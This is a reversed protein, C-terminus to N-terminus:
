KKPEGDRRRARMVILAVVALAALAAGGFVAATRLNRIVRDAEFPAVLAYKSFHSVIAYCMGGSRRTPFADVTGDDNIRVIVVIANQYKQPIPMGIEVEGEPQIEEGGSQVTVDYLSVIDYGEMASHVAKQDGSSTQLPKVILQATRPLAQEPASLIADTTEERVVLDKFTPGQEEASYTRRSTLRDTSTIKPAEVQQDPEPPPPLDKVTYTVQNVASPHLGRKVAFMKITVPRTVSIPGTYSFLEDLVEESPDLGNTSYYLEADPTASSLTVQTGSEIEGSPLSATPAAVQGARTYVYEVVDSPEMGDAAAMAKLVMSENIPIPGTYLASSTGPESGDTTYYISGEKVTLTVAAGDLTIAGTPISASPSPTKQMMTYTFIVPVAGDDGTTAIAKLTVVSGPEGRLTVTSGHSSDEDPTDGDTTYYIDADTIPTSLSVQSGYAVTSGSPPNATLIEEQKCINYTLTVVESPSMLSKTAYARITMSKGEEGDLVVDEGYYRTADEKKSDSTHIVTSSGDSGNIVVDGANGSSTEGASPDSGDKTYVVTAGSQADLRLTTGRAVVAGSDISPDPPDLQEAITFTYSTIASTMGDKEAVAKVTLKQDIPIPASYMQSKFPVPDAPVSGGYAVNYFIGAGETSSKLTLTTGKIVAGAGPVAYVPQVQAPLQYSYRAPDSDLYAGSPDHAVAMITHFTAVDAPMTLGASADYLPSPAEGEAVTAPTRPVTGDLTYYIQTNPVSGTLTIRTDPPITAVGADGTSPLATPADLKARRYTARTIDSEALNEAATVALVTFVEQRETPMKVGTSEYLYTYGPKIGKHMEYDLISPIRGDTTYYIKADLTQTTLTIYEGGRLTVPSADSTAPSAYPAAAKPLPNVSYVFYAVESNQMAHLGDAGPSVAAVANVYFYSQARDYPVTIPGNYLMTGKGDANEAVQAPDPVSGDTTYYVKTNPSPSALTIYSGANVATIKDRSTDPSATPSGARALQYTFRSVGSDALMPASSDTKRTVALIIFPDSDREPAMLVGKKADYIETVPEEGVREEEKTADWALRADPDPISGDTTYFIKSGLTTTLLTIKEGRQLATPASDSTEPSATPADAPDLEVIRYFFSALDSDGLTDNVSRAIVNISMYMQTNRTVVIPTDNYKITAPETKGEREAASMADWAIRADPDPRSGNTTYYLETDPTKTSLIITNGIKVSGPEDATGKPLATPTEVQKRITYTYTFVESDMRTDDEGTVQMKLTVTDGVAGSFTLVQAAREAQVHYSVASTGANRTIFLLPTHQLYTAGENALEGTGQLYTIKPVVYEADVLDVRIEEVDKEFQPVGGDLVVELTGDTKTNTKLKDAKKGARMAAPIDEERLELILRQGNRIASGSTLETGKDADLVRPAQYSRRLNIIFTSVASDPFNQRTFLAKVTVSNTVGSTPLELPQGVTYKKSRNTPTSGDVTYYMQAGPEGQDGHYLYVADLVSPEYYAAPEFLEGDPAGMRLSIAGPVPRNDQTYTVYVVESVPQDSGIVAAVAAVTMISQNDDFAFPGTYLQTGEEPAGTELNFKPMAYASNNTVTYFIKANPTACTITVHDVTSGEANPYIVPRAVRNGQQGSGSGQQHSGRAEIWSTLTIDKGTAPPNLVENIVEDTLSEIATGTQFRDMQESARLLNLRIQLRLAEGEATNETEWAKKEGAIYIYEKKSTWQTIPEELNTKNQAEALEIKGNEGVKFVLTNSALLNEDESVAAVAVYEGLKLDKIKETPNYPHCNSQDSPDVVVPTEPKYETGIRRYYYTVGSPPTPEFAGQYTTVGDESIVGGTGVPQDGVKVTTTATGGFDKVNELVGEEVRITATVIISWTTSVKEPVKLLGHDITLGIDPPTVSWELHDKVLQEDLAAGGVLATIQAAGGAVVSSPGKLEISSVAPIIKEPFSVAQSDVTIKNAGSTVSDVVVPIELEVTTEVENLTATAKVKLNTSATLSKLGSLTAKNDTTESLSVTRPITVAEIKAGKMTAGATCSATLTIEDDGDALATSSLTLAPGTTSADNAFTQVPPQAKAPMSAGAASVGGADDFAFTIPLTVTVTAGGREQAALSVYLKEYEDVANKVTEATLGSLTATANGGSDAVENGTLTVGAAKCGWNLTANAFAEGLAAEIAIEGDVLPASTLTVTPTEEPQTALMAPTTTGTGGTGSAPPADASADAPQATVTYTTTGSGSHTLTITGKLEVPKAPNTKTGESIDTVAYVVDVTQKGTMEPIKINWTEAFDEGTIPPEPKEESTRTVTLAGTGSWTATMNTDLFESSLKKGKVHTELQLTKNNGSLEATNCQLTMQYISNNAPEAIEVEAATGGSQGPDSGSSVTFQASTTLTPNDHVTATVLLSKGSGETFDAPISLLGGEVTIGSAEIDVSGGTVTWDVMKYLEPGSPLNEGKVVAALQIPSGPWVPTFTELPTYKEEGEPARVLKTIETIRPTTSPTATMGTPSAVRGKVWMSAQYHLNNNLFAKASEGLVVEATLATPDVTIEPAPAIMWRLWMGGDYVWYDSSLEQGILKQLRTESYSTAPYASSGRYYGTGKVTKGNGGTWTEVTNEVCRESAYVNEGVAVQFTGAKTEGAPDTETSGKLASLDAVSDTANPAVGYVKVEGENTYRRGGDDNLNGTTVTVSGMSLCNTATGVAGGVIGGVVM